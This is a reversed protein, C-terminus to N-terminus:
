KGRFPKVQNLVLSRRVGAANEITLIPSSISSLYCGDEGIPAKAQDIIVTYGKPLCGSVNYGGKINPTVTPEEVVLAFDIEFVDVEGDKMVAGQGSGVLFANGDSEAEVTGSLVGTTLSGDDNSFVQYETGRSIVVNGRSYDAVRLWSEPSSFRRVKIIAGGGRPILLLTKAGGRKFTLVPFRFVGIGKCFIRGQNFDLVVQDGNRCLFNEGQSISQQEGRIRFLDVARAAIAGQSM